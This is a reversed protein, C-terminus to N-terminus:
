GHTHPAPRSKGGSPDTSLREEFRDLLNWLGRAEWVRGWNRKTVQEVVGARALGALAVRAAEGSAGILEAATNVDLVPRVPLMDIIKAAASNARPHARGSWETQLRRLEDGFTAGAQAAQATSEAFYRVWDDESGTRFVMLARTYRASDAAMLLSVPPVHHPAIGRCRFIAHILCRGVRGNGDAFPHITEFQAHALAAQHTPSIDTRNMFYALDVLLAQVHEPPPPVFEAGIPGNLHGGVWNQEQRVKGAVARQTTGMLLEHIETFTDATFSGDAGLRVAEEMASVNALIALAREDQSGRPDYAAESLRKHSIVLGEIHSSAVSEQRLLQRALADIQNARSPDLQNLTLVASDAESLLRALTGPVEPDYEAIECPVYAKYTAGQREARTQGSPDGPWFREIYRGSSARGM